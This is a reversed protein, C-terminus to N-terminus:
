HNSVVISAAFEEVASKLCRKCLEQAPAHNKNITVAVECNFGLPQVTVRRVTGADIVLEDCNDCHPKLM